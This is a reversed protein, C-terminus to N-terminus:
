RVHIRAEARAIATVESRLKAESGFLRDLFPASFKTYWLIATVKLEDETLTSPLVFTMEHTADFSVSRKPGTPMAPCEFTFATADAFGPFLSRNFRSGVKNWLEHKGILEGKRDIPEAKFVIEPNVLYGREDLHGSAFVVNGGGDTVKVEVWAEIMDLPGTPFDHGTKNNTVVTQVTVEDGPRVEDPTFLEVRIAPGKTWRDAIEPIDFEGRLWDVTLACHEEAGPLDHHRPVFQNAALFRHSRHKGDGPSRNFDHADGTAPDNSAVLPMHCERCGLTKEPDGETHWRSKRWSDYQNQGQVWGVENLEEDIFQKHCAGCAEATKYLPKTYTEIHQRPYARILFDSLGKALPGEHFEYLYRAAPQITYDANGRVDTQITSHCVLCSVGEDAGEVSLTENGVNKAGSFLSIPDHCGACYRTAEPALEKAMNTQVEQFVFDMAAYSHASPLWEALIDSHCGSTGCGASGALQRPHIRGHRRFAESATNLTREVRGRQEDTLGVDACAREAASVLGVHKTPDIRFGALFVDRQEANLLETIETKMTEEVASMDKRALSPAFPRDTGYKFSYTEPFGQDFEIPVYSRTLLLCVIMLGGGWAASWWLCAFHASRIMRAVTINNTSRCLLTVLHAVLAAVFVFTTVIHVLRWAYSIRVGFLAQWTLVFGSTFLAILAAASVYGLLQYHNFKGRFRRWWHRGLYWGVPGTMVIGVATHTLVAFQNFLSFSWLYISLGTLTEYLLLGLVAGTLPRRWEAATEQSTTIAPAIGTPREGVAAGSQDKIEVSCTM